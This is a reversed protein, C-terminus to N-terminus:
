QIISRYKLQFKSCDVNLQLSSQFVYENQIHLQLNYIPKLSASMYSYYFHQKTSKYTTKNIQISNQQNTHQNSSGLASVTVPTFASSKIAM